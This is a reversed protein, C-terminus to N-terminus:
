RRVRQNKRPARLFWPLGNALVMELVLVAMLFGLLMPWLEKRAGQLNRWIGERYEVVRLDTPGFKKKLDDDKIKTLDSEEYPTNVGRRFEGAPLRFQYIGPGGRPGTLQFPHEEERFSEGFTIGAPLSGGASGVADKTLGHVFPLYAAKLPLDNWELDASSTFMFLRSRAVDAELLLPDQNGLALLNRGMGEVRYYVRFSASGLSDGLGTLFRLGGGGSDVRAIREATESTESLKVIRWPALSFSNYAEPVVRDGLFLFAPRGMELFSALRFFDPRAVNLLFVVDFSPLDVQAMENETIVRTLFPSGETEGPRLASALYYSEGARLTTKPDGDVVLVKVKAGVKLPFYFLDDSALRDASLRVEADIWGAKEVLLDFSVKGDQGAKLDISKQDIKTGSLSFQALTSMPQDTLNSVTVELRTPVGVTMEGGALSVDKIRLNADRTSGGIRVCAIAADSINGIRSLDFGDWDSRAMDSVVLVQKAVKLGSLQRYAEAFASGMDGRRYSLPIAELERLAEEPKMWRSSQTQGARATPILAVQGEFGELAERAARKALEYREGRDERYGMSLSNDLLLALAGRQPLAAFGPRDLVPRAMMLAVTLVALIRLALVLLHKLRRARATIRQSQLLLRVASFERPMPRHQTLRHILIPLMAAGMGWLFLPNLFTVNM